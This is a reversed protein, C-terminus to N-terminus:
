HVVIGFAITAMGVVIMILEAPHHVGEEPLRFVPTDPKIWRRLVMGAVGLALATWFLTSLTHSLWAETPSAFVKLDKFDMPQVYGSAPDPTRPRTRYLWSTYEASVSFAVLPVNILAARAPEGLLWGFRDDPGDPTM